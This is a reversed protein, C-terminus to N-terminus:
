TTAATTMPRAILVSHDNVGGSHHRLWRLRGKLKSVQQKSYCSDGIVDPGLPEQIATSVLDTDDTAADISLAWAKGSTRRHANQESDDSESDPMRWRLPQRSRSPLEENDIAFVM